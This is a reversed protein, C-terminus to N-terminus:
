ALGLVALADLCEDLSAAAAVVPIKAARAEAREAAALARNRQGTLRRARDGQDVHNKGRKPPVERHSHLQRRGRVENHWEQARGIARAERYASIQLAAGPCCEPEDFLIGCAYGRTHALGNYVPRPGAAKLAEANRDALHCDTPWDSENLDKKLRKSTYRRPPTHVPPVEVDAAIWGKPRGTAPDIFCCAGVGSGTTVGRQARLIYDRCSEGYRELSRQRSAALKAPNVTSARRSRKTPPKTGATAHELSRALAVLEAMGPMGTMAALRAMRGADRAQQRLGM